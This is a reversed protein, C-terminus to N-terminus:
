PKQAIALYRHENTVFGREDVNGDLSKNLSAANALAASGDIDAHVMDLASLWFILSEIDCVVYEVDYEAFALLRLSAQIVDRAEIVPNSQPQGLAARVSAMNREGVQQTIFYGGPKLHDAVAQLDFPAHRSLIVDFGSTIGELHESCVMFKLNHAARSQEAQRIMEPDVDIGLGHGFLGALDALREAGGTGIDLVLDAPRLYRAVVQAYDWPVPQRLDNIRSFDWGERPRSAALLDDLEDQSYWDRV